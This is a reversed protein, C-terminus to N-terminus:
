CHGRALEDAEFSIATELFWAAPGGKLATNRSLKGFGSSHKM